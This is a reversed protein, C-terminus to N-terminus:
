RRAGREGLRALTAVVRAGRPTLGYRVTAPRTTLVQRDILGEDALWALREFMTRRGADPLLARLGRPGQPGGAMAGLLPATWACKVVMELVGWPLADDAWAGLAPALRRGRATLAWEVVRPYGHNARHVIWGDGELARLRETMVKMSLGAIRRRLALTRCPGGRLSALLALSWKCRLSDGRAAALRSLPDARRASPVKEAGPALM